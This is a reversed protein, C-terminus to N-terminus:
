TSPKHSVRLLTQKSKCICERAACEHLLQLMLISLLLPLLLKSKVRQMRCHNETDSFVNNKM